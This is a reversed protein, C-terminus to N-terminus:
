CRKKKKRIIGGDSFSRVNDPNRNNGYMNSYANLAGMRFLDNMYKGTKTDYGAIDSIRRHHLEETGIHGLQTGVTSAADRVANRKAARNMANIEDARDRSHANYQQAQMDAQMNLGAINANFGLAQQRKQENMQNVGMMANGVADQSNRNHALMLQNALASNGLSNNQLHRAVGAGQQQMQNAMHMGDMPSYNMREGIREPRITRANVTEPKRLAAELGM